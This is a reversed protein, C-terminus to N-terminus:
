HKTIFRQMLYLSILNVYLRDDIKVDTKFYRFIIRKAIAVTDYM